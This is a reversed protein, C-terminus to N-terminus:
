SPGHSRSGYSRVRTPRAWRRACCSTATRISASAISSSESPPAPRTSGSARRPVASAAARASTPMSCRTMPPRSLLVITSTSAPLTQPALRSSWRPGPRSSEANQSSWRRSVPSASNPGRTSMPHNKSSSSWRSSTMTPITRRRTLSRRSPGTRPMERRSRTPSSIAQQPSRAPPRTASTRRRAFRPTCSRSWTSRSRCRTAVRTSSSTITPRSTTSPPGAVDRLAMRRPRSAPLTSCSSPHPTSISCACRRATSTSCCATCKSM